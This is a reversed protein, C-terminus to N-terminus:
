PHRHPPPHTTTTTPPSSASPPAVKFREIALAMLCLYTLAYAAMYQVTEKIEVGSVLTLALMHLVSVGDLLLGVRLGVAASHSPTKRNGLARAIVPCCLVVGGMTVGALLATGHEVAPAMAYLTATSAAGLLLVGCVFYFVQHATSGGM